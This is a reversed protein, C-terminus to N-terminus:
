IVQDRRFGSITHEKALIPQSLPIIFTFIQTSEIYYSGLAVFPSFTSGWAKTIKIENPATLQAHHCMGAM